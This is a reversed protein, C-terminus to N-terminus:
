KSQYGHPHSKHWAWATQVISELDAFRPKWGLEKQITSSDSVLEAPDGQRRAGVVASIPKGTIQQATEIVQKVSYGRGIGLNYKCYDREELAKFALLHAAALDMVHIYDRVCSGDPTPYDEGFVTIKERQGLAVQLVLPILHTEPTHDEGIHGDPHAGSANFYRLCCYRLGYLVHMWHLQREIMAKSEGYPSGPIVAETEAIPIRQPADFLNSTSSLIFRGVKNAVAAELLYSAAVVNDRLYLWPRETSEGVMTHSAFHFIGDFQHDAMVANVQEQNLLDGEIFKAQPHVAARHGMSLNDFVVVAYGARILEDVTHSGVYGAGGTVLIQM